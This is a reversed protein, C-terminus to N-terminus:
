GADASAIIKALEDPLPASQLVHVHGQHDQWVLGPTGIIGFGHALRFNMSLTVRMSFDLGDLPLIGGDKSGDPNHNWYIENARLAHAPDAATLIAAAKVPSSESIIGVLIYRVQVGHKYQSQMEGWLAHCYGCNPDIFEYLLHQPKGAGEAIWTTSQLRPWQAQLMAQPVDQACAPPAFGSLAAILAGALLPLCTSRPSASM